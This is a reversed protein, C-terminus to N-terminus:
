DRYAKVLTTMVFNELKTNMRAILSDLDTGEKQKRRALLYALKDAWTPGAENLSVFCCMGKQTGIDVCGGSFDTADGRRRLLEMLHENGWPCETLPLRTELPFSEWLHQMMNKPDVLKMGHKELAALFEIETM